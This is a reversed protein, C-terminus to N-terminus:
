WDDSKNVTPCGMGEGASNSCKPDPQAFRSIDLALVDRDLIVPKLAM